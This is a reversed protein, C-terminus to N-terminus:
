RSIMPLFAVNRTLLGSAYVVWNGASVSTYLYGQAPVVLYPSTFHHGVSGTQPVLFNIVSIISDNGNMEWLYIIGIVSGVPTFVIDTVHLYYGNPVRYGSVFATGDAATCVLHDSPPPQGVCAVPVGTNGLQAQVPTWLSVVVLIFLLVASIALLTSRSFLKMKEERQEHTKLRGIEKQWQAQLSYSEDTFSSSFFRAGLMGPLSIMFVIVAV